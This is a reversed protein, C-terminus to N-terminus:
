KLNHATKLDKEFQKLEKPVEGKIEERLSIGNYKKEKWIKSNFEVIKDILSSDINEKKSTPFKLKLYDIGKEYLIFSTIQPIIPYSLILFRELLYHLTFKASESENKSFIKNTNYTRAKVIEIYHSAFLEWLFTRLKIAPTYFDYNDYCKDIKRTLKDMYNIFLKDLLCLKPKKKPKNFLM